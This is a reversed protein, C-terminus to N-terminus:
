RWRSYGVASRAARLRKLLLGSGGIDEFDDAARGKIQLHHKLRKYLRCSPQAFGFHRSDKPRLHFSELVRGTM